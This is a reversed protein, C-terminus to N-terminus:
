ALQVDMSVILLSIGPFMTKYTSRHASTFRLLLFFFPVLTQDIQVGAVFLVSNQDM